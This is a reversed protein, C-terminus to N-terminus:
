PGAAGDGESEWVTENWEVFGLTSNLVLRPGQGVDVPADDTKGNWCYKDWCQACAKPDNVGARALSKKIVACALCSAWDDGEGDPAQGNGYTAVNFANELTVNLQVDTFSAKRFTFNTYASWPYNPLYLVLPTNDPADCGFFTPRSTANSNVLTRANPIEPFPLAGGSANTALYTNRLNTGNVWDYVPEDSSSDYAIILDLARHPTLLPRLPITEGTESGDM